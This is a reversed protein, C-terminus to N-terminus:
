RGVHDYARGLYYYADAFDSKVKIARQYAQIAEDYHEQDSAVNGLGFYARAEAVNMALASHYHQEASVYDKSDRSVNGQAIAKEVRQSITESAEERGVGETGVGTDRNSKSKTTGSSRTQRSTLTLRIVPNQPRDEPDRGQATTLSALLIGLFLVVFPKLFNRM